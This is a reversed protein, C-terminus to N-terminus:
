RGVAAPTPPPPAARAQRRTKGDLGGAIAWEAFNEPSRVWDRPKWAATLYDEDAYYEASAGGPCHFYWFYASSIPHRGPGLETSWGKAAMAIGGGFVEHIDRVTYAIHNLGPKGPRSLLFLNHHGGEAQCRLFAGFGPYQDSLHFGLKDRYFVLTAALDDVFAVYHGVGLPSARSYIPAARDIRKADGPANIPVASVAVPKRRSVRFSLTLGNPDTCRAGGASAITKALEAENAAGWVVERLTSGSEFAPPLAPDDARRIHVETGDETEFVAHESDAERQRLGWDAFFRTTEAVDAVGYTIADIGNLAM